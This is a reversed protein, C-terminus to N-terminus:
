NKYNVIRSVTRYKRSESESMTVHRRVRLAEAYRWAPAKRRQLITIRADSDGTMTRCTSITDLGQAAGPLARVYLHVSRQQYMSSSSRWMRWSLRSNASFEASFEGDSFNGFLQPPYPPIPPVGGQDYQCMEDEPSALCSISQSTSSVRVSQLSGMIWRRKCHASFSSM